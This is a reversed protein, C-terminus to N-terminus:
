LIFITLAFYAGIITSVCGLAIWSNDQHTYGWYSCLIGVTLAGTSWFWKSSLDTATLFVWILQNVILGSNVFLNPVFEKYEDRKYSRITVWVLLLLIIAQLTVYPLNAWVDFTWETKSAIFIDEHNIDKHNTSFLLQCFLMSM